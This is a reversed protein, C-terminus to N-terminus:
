TKCEGVEYWRGMMTSRLSGILLPMERLDEFDDEELAGRRFAGGPADGSAAEGLAGELPAEPEFPDGEDDVPAFGALVVVGCLAEAMM